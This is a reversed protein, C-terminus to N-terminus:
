GSTPHMKGNLYGNFRKAYQEFERSSKVDIPARIQASSSTPRDGGIGEFPPSINLGLLCRASGTTSNIGAIATAAPQAKARCGAVGIALGRGTCAAAVGLSSGLASSRPSESM